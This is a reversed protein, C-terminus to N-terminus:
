LSFKDNIDENDIKNIENRMETFFTLGATVVSSIFAIKISVLLNVYGVAVLSSFFSIGGVIVTDIASRLAARKCKTIFEQNKDHGCKIVTCIVSSNIM